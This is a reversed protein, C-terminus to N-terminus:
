RYANPEEFLRPTPPPKAKPPPRVCPDQGRLLRAVERARAILDAEEDATLPVAADGRPRTDAVGFAAAWRGGLRGVYRLVQQADANGKRAFHRLPEAHIIEQSPQSESESLSSECSLGHAIGFTCIMRRRRFTAAYERIQQPTWSTLDASKAVYKSVYRATRARDHVARIDVISSDGTCSLWDEALLRQPYYLGEVIMHVHVHWGDGNAGTTVEFTAVGGRVRSKWARLRRLKRLAESIRDVREALPRGDERLTLTILRPADFTKVISGVRAAAERARRRQCFPCLRHRCRSLWLRPHGDSSVALVPFSCCDCLRNVAKADQPDPSGALADVTRLRTEHFPAHLRRQAATQFELPHWTTESADLSTPTCSASGVPVRDSSAPLGRSAPQSTPQSPDSTWSQVAM